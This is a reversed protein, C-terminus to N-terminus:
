RGLWSARVLFRDLDAKSSLLSFLELENIEDRLEDCELVLWDCGVRDIILRQGLILVCSLFFCSKTLHMKSRRRPSKDQRTTTQRFYILQEIRSRNRKENLFM